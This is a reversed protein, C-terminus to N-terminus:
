AESFCKKTMKQQPTSPSAAPASSNLRRHDSAAAFQRRFIFSFSILSCRSIATPRDSRRRHRAPHPQDGDGLGAPRGPLRRGGYEASTEGPFRLGGLAVWGLTNRSVATWYTICVFNRRRRTSAASRRVTIHQLRRPCRRDRLSSPSVRQYQRGTERMRRRPTLSFPVSLSLFIRSFEVDYVWNLVSYFPLSYEFSCM